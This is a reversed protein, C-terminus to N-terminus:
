RRSRPACSTRADRAARSVSSREARTRSGTDARRTRDARSRLVRWRDVRDFAGAGRNRGRKEIIGLGDRLWQVAAGAIFIAGELAYVPAGTANCAITTLLGGTQRAPRTTAPTSCCFRAPEMPTRARQGPTWCGQGFLAAQQDGAIGQIPIEAGFVDRTTVGFDGSSPRVEPLMSMPVGFSSACSM